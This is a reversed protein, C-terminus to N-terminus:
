LVSLEGNRITAVVGGGWEASRRVDFDGTKGAVLAVCSEISEGGMDNISQQGAVSVQFNLYELKKMEEDKGSDWHLSLYGSRIEEIRTM